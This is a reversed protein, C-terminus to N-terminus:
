SGTARRARLEEAGAESLYNLAHAFEDLGLRKHGGQLAQGTIGLGSLPVGASIPVQLRTRVDNVWPWRDADEPPPGASVIFAPDYRAVSTVEVVANCRRAGKAYVLVLDGVAFHPRGRRSSSFWTDDAWPLDAAAEDRYLAKLWLTVSRAESRLANARDVLALEEDGSDHEVLLSSVSAPLTRAVAEVAAIDADSILSAMQWWVDFHLMADQRQTADLRVGLEANARGATRGTGADTLNASGVLCYDPDALLVKAHLNALSRLEVGAAILQRLGRTSRSGHAVSVADLRTLVRWRAGSTRASNSLQAIVGPGLFPSALRVDKAAATTAAALADWAQTVLTSPAPPEESM